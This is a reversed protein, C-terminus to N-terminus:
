KATDATMRAMTNKKILGTKFGFSLLVHCNKRSPAPNRNISVWNTLRRAKYKPVVHSTFQMANDPIRVTRSKAFM